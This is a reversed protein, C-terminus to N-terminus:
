KDLDVLFDGPDGDFIAVDPVKAGAYVEEYLNWLTRRYWEETQETKPIREMAERLGEMVKAKRRAYDTPYNWLRRQAEWVISQVERPNLGYKEAIRIAAERAAWYNGNFGGSGPKPKFSTKMIEDNSGILMLLSANFHHTDATLSKFRTDNPDVINNYFSRVKSQTSL